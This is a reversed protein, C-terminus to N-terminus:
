ALRGTPQSVLRILRPLRLNVHPRKGIHITSSPQDRIGATRPRAPSAITVFQKIHRWKSRQHTHADSFPACEGRALRDFQKLSVVVVSRWGEQARIVVHRWVSTKEHNLM